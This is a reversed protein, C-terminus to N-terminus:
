RYKGLFRDHRKLFWSSLWGAAGDVCSILCTPAAGAVLWVQSGSCPVAKSVLCFDLRQAICLGGCYWIGHAM